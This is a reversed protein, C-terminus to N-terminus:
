HCLQLTSHESRSSVLRISTPINKFQDKWMGPALNNSALYLSQLIMLKKLFGYARNLSFTNAYHIFGPDLQPPSTQCVLFNMINTGIQELKNDGVKVIQGDVIFEPVIKYIGDTDEQGFSFKWDTHNWLYKVLSKPRVAGGDDEM